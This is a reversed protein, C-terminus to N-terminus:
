VRRSSSTEGLKAVANEVQKALAPYDEGSLQIPEGFSV